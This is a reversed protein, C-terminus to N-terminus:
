PPPSQSAEESPRIRFDNLALTVERISVRASALAAAIEEDSANPDFTRWQGDGTTVAILARERGKKEQLLASFDPASSLTKLWDDAPWAREDVIIQNARERSVPDPSPWSREMKELLAHRQLPSKLVGEIRKQSGYVAVLLWSHHRHPAADPNVTVRNHVATVPNREPQEDRLRVQERVITELLVKEEERAVAGTLTAEQGSFSVVVKEFVGDFEPRDLWARTQIALERQTGPLHFAVGAVWLLLFLILCSFYRPKVRWCCAAAVIM